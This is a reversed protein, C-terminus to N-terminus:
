RTASLAPQKTAEIHEASIFASCGAVHCYTRKLTDFEIAKREFRLALEEDLFQSALPLPIPERCCRPPYLSEDRTAHDFLSSICAKCYYDGCTALMLHSEVKGDGCAICDIIPEPDSTTHSSIVSATDATEGTPTTGGHVLPESGLIGTFSAAVRAEASDESTENKTHLDEEKPDGIM